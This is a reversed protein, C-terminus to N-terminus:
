NINNPLPIASPTTSRNSEILWRLSDMSSVLHTAGNLHACINKFCVTVIMRGDLLTVQNDNISCPYLNSLICEISLCWVREIWKQLNPPMSANVDGYIGHLIDFALYKWKHGVMSATSTFLPSPSDLPQSQMLRVRFFISNTARIDVLNSNISTGLLRLSAVVKNAFVISQVSKLKDILSATSSLEPQYFHLSSSNSLIEGDDRMIALQVYCLDPLSANLVGQANRILPTLTHPATLACLKGEHVVLAFGHHSLLDVEESSILNCPALQKSAM